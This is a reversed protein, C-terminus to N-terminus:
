KRILLSSGLVHCFSAVEYYLYLLNSLLAADAFLFSCSTSLRSIERPIQPASSCCPPLVALVALAFAGCV